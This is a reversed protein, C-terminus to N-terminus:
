QLRKEVQEASLLLTTIAGAFRKASLGDETSLTSSMRVEGKKEDWELKTMVMGFNLAALTKTVECVRPSSKPLKVLDVVALYVFQNKEDAVLLFSYTKSGPFGTKFSLQGAGAKEFKIKMAGLYKECTGRNVPTAFATAGFLLLVLVGLFTRRKM